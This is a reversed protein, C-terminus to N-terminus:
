TKRRVEQTECIVCGMGGEGIKEIIKFHGITQGIM